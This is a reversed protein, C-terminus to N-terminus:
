QKVQRADKRAEAQPGFLGSSITQLGLDIRREDRGERKLNDIVQWISAKTYDARSVKPFSLAVSSSSAFTVIGIHDGEFSIKRTGVYGKLLGQMKNWDVASSADVLLALDMPPDYGSFLSLEISVFSIISCVLWMCYCYFAPLHFYSQEGGNNFRCYVHFQSM